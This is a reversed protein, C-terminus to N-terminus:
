SDQPCASPHQTEQGDEEMEEVTVEGAAAAESSEHFVEQVEQEGQFPAQEGQSATLDRLSPAQQRSGPM